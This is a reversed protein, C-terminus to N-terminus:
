LDLEIQENPFAKSFALLQPKLLKLHSLATTKLREIDMRALERDQPQPIYYGAPQHPTSCILIGEDIRLRRIERRVSRAPIHLFEQCDYQTKAQLRGRANSQLYHLVTM